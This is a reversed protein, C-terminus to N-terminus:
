SEDDTLLDTEDIPDLLSFVASVVSIGLMAGIGYKFAKWVDRM